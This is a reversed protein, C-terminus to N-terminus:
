GNSRGKRNRFQELAEGMWGLYLQAAEALDTAPARGETRCWGYVPLLKDDEILAEGPKSLRMRACFHTFRELERWVSGSGHREAAQELAAELCGVAGAGAGYGAAPKRGTARLKLTDADEASEGPDCGADILAAVLEHEIAQAHDKILGRPREDKLLRVRYLAEALNVDSM